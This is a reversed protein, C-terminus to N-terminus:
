LVASLTCAGIATVRLTSLLRFTVFYFKLLFGSLCARNAQAAAIYIYIVFIRGCIHCSKKSSIVPNSGTVEDKGIIDM